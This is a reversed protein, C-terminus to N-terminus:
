LRPSLPAGLESAEVDWGASPAPSHTQHNHAFVADTAQRAAAGAPLPAATAAPAPERLLSAPPRDTVPEITSAEHVPVLLRLVGPDVGRPAGGADPTLLFAHPTAGGAYAVGVIQGANNTSGM